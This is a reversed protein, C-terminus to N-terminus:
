GRRNEYNGQLLRNSLKSATRSLFMHFAGLVRENLERWLKQNTDLAEAMYTIHDLFSFKVTMKTKETGFSEHSTTANNDDLWGKNIKFISCKGAHSTVEDDDSSDDGSDNDLEKTPGYIQLADLCIKLRMSFHEDYQSKYVTNQEYEVWEETAAAACIMLGYICLLTKLATDHYSGLDNRDPYFPAGFYMDFKRFVDGADKCAHVCGLLGETAKLYEQVEMLYHISPPTWDLRAIGDVFIDTMHKLVVSLTQKKCLCKRSHEEDDKFFSDIKKLEERLKDSRQVSKAYDSFSPFVFRPDPM